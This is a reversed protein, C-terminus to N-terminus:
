SCRHLLTNDIYKLIHTDAILYRVILSRQGTWVTSWLSDIGLAHFATGCREDIILRHALVTAEPIFRM